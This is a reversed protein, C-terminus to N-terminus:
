KSSYVTGKVSFYSRGQPDAVEIVGPGKCGGVGELM